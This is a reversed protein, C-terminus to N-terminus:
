HALVKPATERARRKPDIRRLFQEGDHHNLRRTLAIVESSEEAVQDVGREVISGCEIISRQSGCPSGARARSARAVLRRDVPLWAGAHVGRQTRVTHQPVAAM